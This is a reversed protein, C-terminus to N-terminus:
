AFNSAAASAAKRLTAAEVNLVDQGVVRPVDTYHLDRLLLTTHELRLQAALLRETGEELRDVALRNLAAVDELEAAREESPNLRLEQARVAALVAPPIHLTGSAEAESAALFRAIEMHRRRRLNFAAHHAEETVARLLKPFSQLPSPTRPSPFRAVPTSPLSPTSHFPALAPCV